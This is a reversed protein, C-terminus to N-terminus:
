VADLNVIEVVARNVEKAGRKLPKRGIMPLTLAVAAARAEALNILIALNGDVRLRAVKKDQRPHENRIMPLIVAQLKEAKKARKLLRKETTRSIAPITM